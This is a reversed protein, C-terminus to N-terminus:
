SINSRIFDDNALTAIEADFLQLLEIVHVRAAAVKDSATAQRRGSMTLVAEFAAESNDHREILHSGSPGRSGSIWKKVTRGSHRRDLADINERV